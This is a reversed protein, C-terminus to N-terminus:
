RYHHEPDTKQVCNEFDLSSSAGEAWLLKWSAKIMVKQFRRIQGRDLYGRVAGASIQNVTCFPLLQSLSIKGNIQASFALSPRQCAFTGM